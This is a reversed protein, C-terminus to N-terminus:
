IWREGLWMRAFWDAYTIKEGVYIPYFYVFCWGIVLLYLGLMVSGFARRDFRWILAGPRGRILLGLLYVIAMVLFPLAPVAYFYFMTRHSFEYIFWPVIGVFAGWFLASARWDRRSIAFAGVGIMAPLFSWWLLPTGLLLVEASCSAAGCGGAASYYFMVPRGLLLWQWPWSQYVHPTTLTDHFHLAQHEYHALNVVANIVPPLADGHHTDAWWNRDFGHGTAFWGSWSAIYAAVIVGGFLVIWVAEDLLTDRWPRTVGASRRTGVEWSFILLVFLILYWLASWKVSMACGMM